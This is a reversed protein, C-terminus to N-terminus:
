RATQAIRLAIGITLAFTAHIGKGAQEMSASVNAPATRAEAVTEMSVILANSSVILGLLRSLVTPVTKTPIGIRCALLALPGLGDLEQMAIM